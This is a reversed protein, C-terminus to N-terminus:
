GVAKTVIYNIGNYCGAIIIYDRNNSATCGQHISYISLLIEFGGDFGPATDAIQCRFCFEQGDSRIQEAIRSLYLQM